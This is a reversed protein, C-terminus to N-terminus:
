YLPYVLEGELGNEEVLCFNKEERTNWNHSFINEQARDFADKKDAVYAWQGWKYINRRYKRFPIGLM